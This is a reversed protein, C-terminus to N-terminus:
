KKKEKYVLIATAIVMTTLLIYIPSIKLFAVGALAVACIVWAWWSKCSTKAMKIMPVLILAVVAPRIGQFAKSVYVNDKFNTFFMAILLIFLFPSACSGLTSVIAGPVGKIRYGVFISINVAILGPASMALSLIDPFEDESLWGKSCVADKILAVMAYGGGITFTGIKLFVAFLRWLSVSQKEMLPAFNPTKAFCRPLSKPALANINRIKITCKCGRFSHKPM